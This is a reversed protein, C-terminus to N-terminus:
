ARDEATAGVALERTPRRLLQWALWCCGVTLLIGHAVRIPQAAAYQPIYLAMGIALPLAATRAFRRTRLAAAAFMGTGVALALLGPIIFWIGEQWRIGDTLMTLLATDHRRLAAQGVAHLGFNEAGYYPLTLAIGVWSVVLGRRALTGASAERLRAAVGLLGLALLIFAGMAMSHAVLWRTSAFATAGALSTEDSFPRIAPYLAFGIGALTLSAAAAAAGRADTVRKAPTTPRASAAPSQLATTM